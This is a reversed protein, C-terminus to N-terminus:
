EPMLDAELPAFAAKLSFTDGTTDGAKLTRHALVLLRTASSIHAASWRALAAHSILFWVALKPKVM